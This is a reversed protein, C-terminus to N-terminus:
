QPDETDISAEATRAAAIFAELASDAADRAMSHSSTNRLESMYVDRWLERAESLTTDSPYTQTITWM